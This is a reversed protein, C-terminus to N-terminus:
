KQEYCKLNIDSSELRVNYMKNGESSFCYMERKTGWELIQYEAESNKELKSLTAIVNKHRGQKLAHRGFLVRIKKETLNGSIVKKVKADFVYFYAWPHCDNDNEGYCMWAAADKTEKVFKLDLIAVLDQSYALPSFLLLVFPFLKNMTLELAWNVRRFPTAQKTRAYRILVFFLSATSTPNFQNNHTFRM